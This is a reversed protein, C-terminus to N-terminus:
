HCVCWTTRAAAVFVERAHDQGGSGAVLRESVLHVPDGALGAPLGFVSVRADGIPHVEPHDGAIGDRQKQGSRQAFTESSPDCDLFDAHEFTM